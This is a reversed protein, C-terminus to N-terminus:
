SRAISSTMPKSGFLKANQSNYADRKEIPEVSLRAM